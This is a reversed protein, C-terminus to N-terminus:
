SRTTKTIKSFSGQSGLSNHDRRPTMSHYLDAYLERGTTKFGNKGLTPTRHDIESHYLFTKNFPILM